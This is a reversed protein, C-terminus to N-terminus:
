AVRMVEVGTDTKAFIFGEDGFTRKACQRVTSAFNKRADEGMDNYDLVVVEGVNMAEIKARYGTHMFSNVVVRAKRRTNKTKVQTVEITGYSRGEDDIVLYKHGLLSLDHLVRELLKKRASM